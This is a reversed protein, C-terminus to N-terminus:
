VTEEGLRHRLRSYVASILDSEAETLRDPERGWILADLLRDLIRNAWEPREPTLNNTPGTMPRVETGILAGDPTQMAADPATKNSPKGRDSDRLTVPAPYHRM